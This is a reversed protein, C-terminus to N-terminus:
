REEKTLSSNSSNGFNRISDWLRVLGRGGISQLVEDVAAKAEQEDKEWEDRYALFDIMFYALDFLSVDVSRAFEVLFCTLEDQDLEHDNNSDVANMIDVFSTKSYYVENMQCFREIGYRLEHADITGSGDLDWDAFLVPLMSWSKLLEVEEEKFPHLVRPQFKPGTIGTHSDHHMHFFSGYTM